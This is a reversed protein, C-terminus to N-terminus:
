RTMNGKRQTVLSEGQKEQKETSVRVLSAFRDQKGNNKVVM